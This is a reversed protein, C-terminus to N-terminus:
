GLHCHSLEAAAIGQAYIYYKGYTHINQTYQHRHHAIQVATNVCYKQTYTCKEHQPIQSIKRQAHTNRCIYCVLKVEKFDM